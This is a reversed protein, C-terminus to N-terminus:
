GMFQSVQLAHVQGGQQQRGAGRAAWARAVLPGLVARPAFEVVEVGCEGEVITGAIGALRQAVLDFRVPATM